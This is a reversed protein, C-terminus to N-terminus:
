RDEEANRANTTPDLRKRAAASGPADKRRPRAPAADPTRAATAADDDGGTEPLAAVSSGAAVGWERRPRFPVATLSTPSNTCGPEVRRLGRGGARLRDRPRDDHVAPVEGSWDPGQRRALRARARGDSPAIEAGICHRIMTPRRTSRGRPPSTTGASGTSRTPRPGASCTPSRRRRRAMAGTGPACRATPLPSSAPPWM